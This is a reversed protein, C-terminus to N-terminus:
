RPLPLLSAPGRNARCITYASARNRLSSLGGHRHSRSSYASLPFASPSLAINRQCRLMRFAPAFCVPRFAPAFPVSLLPLRSLLRPCVSRLPSAFPVSPLPLRSLPPPSGQPYLPLFPPPRGPFAFAARGFIRSMIERRKTPFTGGRCATRKSVGRQTLRHEM